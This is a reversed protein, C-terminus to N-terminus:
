YFRATLTKGERPHDGENTERQYNDYVRGIIWKSFRHTIRTLADPVKIIFLRLSDLVAVIIEWPKALNTVTIVCLRVVVVSISKLVSRPVSVCYSALLNIWELFHHTISTLTNYVKLIFMRLNDLIAIMIEWLKAVVISISKLVYCPSTLCYLSLVYIWELLHYIISTLADFIKLIFLRLNELLAVMMEWLKTVFVSISELVYSPVTLCYSALLYIWEPCHHTISTLANSIKLVFLRLSDLIVVIIEWLKAM